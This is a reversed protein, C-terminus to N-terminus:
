RGEGRERQRRHREEMRQVARDAEARDAEARAATTGPGPGPAREPTEDPRRTAAPDRPSEVVVWSGLAYLGALLVIAPPGYAFDLEWWNGLWGVPVPSAEIVRTHAPWVALAFAGVALAAGLLIARRPGRGSSRVAVIVMTVGVVFLLLGAAGILEAVAWVDSKAYDRATRAMEEYAGGGSGGIVVCRDGPSMVEGDCKLSGTFEASRAAHARALSVAAVIGGTVSVAVGVPLPWGRRSPEPESEREGM